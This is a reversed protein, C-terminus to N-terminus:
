DVTEAVMFSVLFQEVAWSVNDDYKVLDVIM